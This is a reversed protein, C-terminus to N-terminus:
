SARKLDGDIAPALPQVLGVLADVVAADFQAGREEVLAEVAQRPSFAERYNHPASMAHFADAVAVIRAALPIADACLRDPYGRGDVREHHARVVPAVECLSPVQELLEAGIRAHAHMETWQDDSLPGAKMIIENSTKIKGVDHLTGCLAAFDQQDGSLEMARAIRRCWEGVARAHEATGPDRAELTALLAAVVDDRSAAAGANAHAQRRELREALEHARLALYSSVEPSAGHRDQHSTTLATVALVVLRSRFSAEGSILTADIWRDLPERDNKELELALKDFLQNVFLSSAV